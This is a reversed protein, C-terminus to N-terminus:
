FRKHTSTFERLYDLDVAPLIESMAYDRKGNAISLAIPKPLAGTGRLIINARIRVGENDISLNGTVDTHRAGLLFPRTTKFDGGNYEGTVILERIATRGGGLAAALAKETDRKEYRNANDYFADTGLGHLFGGDISADIMGAMNRRIDAATLGFSELEAQATIAAGEVNVPAAEDFLKGPVFFKNSQVLYKYKSREKSVTLLLKGNESDSVSMKQGGGDLAYMFGNYVVGNLKIGDASVVVNAGFNFPELMPDASLYQNDMFDAFWKGDLVADMDIADTKLTVGGDYMAGQFVMDAIKVRMNTIWGGGYKGTIMVPVNSKLFPLEQRNTLLALVRRANKHNFAFGKSYDAGLSWDATRFMFSRADDNIIVAVDGKENLLTEPIPIRWGNLNKLMAGKEVYEVRRHGGSMIATGAKGGIGFEIQGNQRGVYKRIDDLLGMDTKANLSNFTMRFDDKSVSVAGDARMEKGAFSWHACNWNERNGSLLCRIATRDSPMHIAVDLNDATEGVLKGSAALSFDGIATLRTIDMDTEGSVFRASLDTMKEMGKIRTKIKESINVNFDSRYLFGPDDSLFSLDLNADDIKMRVSKRTQVGNKYWLKVHGDFSSRGNTGNIDSFDFTGKGDWDFNMSVKTKGSIKPYKFEFWKNVDGSEVSLNGRASITGSDDSMIKGRVVLGENPNTIVFDGASLELNYKHRDTRVRASLTGSDITGGIIEYDKGGYRVTSDEILVKRGFNPVALTQIESKYGSIKVASIIRANKLDFVGDWSIRFRVSEAYADGLRVRSAALMPYGLLSLKIDGEIRASVGAANSLAVALDSKLGGMPILPPIVLYSMALVALACAGTWFIRYRVKSKM